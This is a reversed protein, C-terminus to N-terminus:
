DFHALAEEVPAKTVPFELNLTNQATRELVDYAISPNQFVTRICAIIGEQINKAFRTEGNSASLYRLLETMVMLRLCTQAEALRRYVLPYSSEPDTHENWRVQEAEKGLTEIDFLSFSEALRSSALDYVPAGTMLQLSEIVQTCNSRLKLLTEAEFPATLLERHWRRLELVLVARGTRMATFGGEDGRLLLDRAYRIIERPIAGSFMTLVDIADPDIRDSFDSGTTREQLMLRATQPSVGEINFVEEFTSEFIDRGESLRGQFKRAADESISLLYYTGDKFFASKLERLILKVDNPDSMKDLEDVIVILKDNFHPLVLEVFAHYRDTLSQLTLARASFSQKRSLGLWKLSLTGGRERDERFELFQLFENAERMLSFYKRNVVSRTLDMIGRRLEPVFYLFLGVVLALFFQMGYVTPDPGPVPEAPQAPRPPDLTTVYQSLISKILGLDTRDLGGTDSNEDTPISEQVAGLELSPDPASELQIFYHWRLVDSPLLGDFPDIPINVGLFVKLQETQNKLRVKLDPHNVLIRYAEECRSRDESRGEKILCTINARRFQSGYLIEQITTRRRPDLEGELGARELLNQINFVQDEFSIPDDTITISQSSFSPVLSFKRPKDDSTDEIVSIADMAVLLASITQKESQVLEDFNEKVARPGNTSIPGRESDIEYFAPFSVSYDPAQVQSAILWRSALFFSVSLLLIALTALRFRRWIRDFADGAGVDRQYLAKEIMAITKESVSRGMSILFSLNDSSKHSAPATMWVVLHKSEFRRQAEKLLASKGAGRVGTVGVVGGNSEGIIRSLDKAYGDGDVYNNSSPYISLEAPASTDEAIEVPSIKMTQRSALRYFAFLLLGVGILVAHEILLESTTDQYFPLVDVFAYFYAYEFEELYNTWTVAYVSLYAILLFAPAHFLAEFGSKSINIKSRGHFLLWVMFFLSLVGLTDAKGLHWEFNWAIGCAVIVVLAAYVTSATSTNDGHQVFYWVPRIIRDLMPIIIREFIAWGVVGTAVFNAILVLDFPILNNTIEVVDLDSDIDSAANLLPGFALLWIMLGIGSWRLLSFRPTAPASEERQGTVGQLSFIAFTVYAFLSISLTPWVFETFWSWVGSVSYDSLPKVFTAAVFPWVIAVFTLIIALTSFNRHQQLAHIRAALESEKVSKGFSKQSTEDSPRM